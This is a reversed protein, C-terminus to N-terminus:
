RVGDWPETARVGPAQEEYVVINLPCSALWYLLIDRFAPWDAPDGPRALALGCLSEQQWDQAIRQAIAEIHRLPTAGASSQRMVLLALWPTSERWIWWSGAQINSARAQKHFAAFAAPFRDAFAVALPHDEHQGRANVDIGIAPARSLLIDGRVFTITM